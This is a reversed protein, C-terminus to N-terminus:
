QIIHPANNSTSPTGDELIGPDKVKAVIDIDGFIIKHTTEPFNGRPPLNVDPPMSNSGFLKITNPHSMEDTTFNVGDTYFRLVNPNNESVWQGTNWNWYVPLHGDPDGAGSVDSFPDFLDYVDINSPVGNLHVHQPFIIDGNGDVITLFMNGIHTNAAIFQNQNFAPNGNQDQLIRVHKYQRDGLTIVSGWANDYNQVGGASTNWSINGAALSYVAIETSGQAPDPNNMDVGGHFRALNGSTRIEGPTGGISGRNNNSFPWSQQSYVIVSSTLWFFTTLLNNSKM